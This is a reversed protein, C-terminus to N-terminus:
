ESTRRVDKRNAICRRRRRRRRRRCCRRVLTASAKQLLWVSLTTGDHHGRVLYQPNRGFTAQGSGAASRQEWRGSHEHSHL